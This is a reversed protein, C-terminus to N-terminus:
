KMSPIRLSAQFPIADRMGPTLVNPPIPDFIGASGRGLIGAGGRTGAGLGGRYVAADLRVFSVSM